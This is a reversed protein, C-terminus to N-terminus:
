IADMSVLRSAEYGGGMAVGLYEGHVPVCKNGGALEGDQVNGRKRGMGINLGRRSMEIDLLHDGDFVGAATAANDISAQIVQIGAARVFHEIVAFDSFAGILATSVDVVDNFVVSLIVQLSMVM